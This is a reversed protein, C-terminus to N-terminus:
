TLRRTYALVESAALVPMGNGALDEERKTWDQVLCAVGEDFSRATRDLVVIWDARPWRHRLRLFGDAGDFVVLPASHQDSPGDTDRPMAPLVDSRFHQDTAQLRRARLVDQLKGEHVARRGAVKAGFPTEFVENRLVRTNGVLLAHMESHLAYDYSDIGQLLCEMFGARRVLTKGKQSKPLQEASLETEIPEVRLALPPPFSRTLGGGLSHLKEVQVRILRKGERMEVGLLLGRKQRSGDRVTVATGAPLSALMEFHVIPDSSKRTAVADCLVAGVAVLPAAFSRTPLAMAVARPQDSRTNALWNGLDVLTQAWSPIPRWGEADQYCLGAEGPLLAGRSDAPASPAAQEEVRHENDGNSM